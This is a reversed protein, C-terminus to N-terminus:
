NTEYENPHAVRWVWVPHLGWSCATDRWSALRAQYGRLYFFVCYRFSIFKPLFSPELPAHAESATTTRSLKDTLGSKRESIDRPTVYSIWWGWMASCRLLRKQLWSVWGQPQLCASPFLHWDVQSQWIRLRSLCWDAAMLIWIIWNPPLRRHTPWSTQIAM